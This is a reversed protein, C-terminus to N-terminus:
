FANIETPQSPSQFHIGSSRPECVIIPASVVAIEIVVGSLGRLLGFRSSFAGYSFFFPVWGLLSVSSTALCQFAPFCEFVSSPAVVFDEFISCWSM